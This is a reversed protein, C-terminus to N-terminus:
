IDDGRILEELEYNNRIRWGEEPTVAGYMRRLIQRAFVLLSNV